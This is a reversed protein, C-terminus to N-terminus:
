ECYVEKIKDKLNQVKNEYIARYLKQKKEDLERFYAIHWDLVDNFEKEWKNIKILAEDIKKNM